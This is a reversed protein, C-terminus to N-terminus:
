SGREVPPLALQGAGAITVSLGLGQVPSPPADWRAMSRRDRAVLARPAADSVFLVRLGHSGSM